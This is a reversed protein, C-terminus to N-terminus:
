VELDVRVIDPVSFQGPSRAVAETIGTGVLMGKLYVVFEQMKVPDFPPDSSFFLTNGQIEFEWRRGGLACGIRAATVTHRELDLLLRVSGSSAKAGEGRSFPIVIWHLPHGKKHNVFAAIGNQVEPRGPVGRRVKGAAGAQDGDDREPTGHGNGANRESTGHGSGAEGEGANPSDGSRGDGAPESGEFGGPGSICDVLRDLAEGDSEIGREALIAAAEAAAFERGPYREARRMLASIVRPELRAGIGSFFRVLFASLPTEEIGLRSFLNAPHNGAPAPLPTLFITGSSVRVRAPFVDGPTFGAGSLASRTKGAVRVSFVGASNKGLVEVQVVAGDRIDPGRGGPLSIRFSPDPASLSGPVSM